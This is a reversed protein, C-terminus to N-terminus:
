VIMMQCRPDHSHNVKNLTETRRSWGDGAEQEALGQLKDSVTRENQICIIPCVSMLASFEYIICQKQFGNIYRLSSHM